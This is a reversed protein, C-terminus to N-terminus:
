ATLKERYEVPSLYNLSSHPRMTRYEEIWDSIVKFAHDQDEFQQHWVCESKLSGFFREIMGNQQPTYPTIYEQTLGYKKAVKVFEKSGFVLGNDSRIILDPYLGQIGRHYLADELAAAAVIAKGSNSLRWGVIDRDCCDIIATLHCWGNKTFIHTTDIAWRLNPATTRSMWGKARPRHGKPKKMVQWNNLKIIRHIKKRNIRKNEQRILMATLRRLGYEPYNQILQYLSSELEKDRQKTRGKRKARYYVNSRTIGLVSCIKRISVEKGEDKLRSQM